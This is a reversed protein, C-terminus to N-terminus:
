DRTFRTPQYDRLRRFRESRIEALADAESVPPWAPGNAIFGGAEMLTQLHPFDLEAVSLHKRASEKPMWTRNLAQLLHPRRGTFSELHNIINRTAGSIRRPVIGVNQDARGVMALLHLASGEAAVILRAAKYRKIQDSLAHKQPHFIDYGQTTLHQELVREFLVGGRRPGIASRSIYLKKAGDPPIDKAFNRTMATRFQPTGQSMAGLGFGQGPVLLQEVSTPIRVIRIPIDRGMLNVFDQHYQAV